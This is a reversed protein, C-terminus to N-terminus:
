SIWSGCGGTTKWEEGSKKLILTSGQGCLTGCYYSYSVVAYRHNRDFVIESLTLIGNDSSRAIDQAEEERIRKKKLEGDILSITPSTAIRSDLRHVVKAVPRVLNLDRVCEKGFLPASPDLERTWYSVNLPQGAGKLYDKLVVRYISIQEPTLEERSVQTRAASDQVATVLVLLFNILFPTLVHM